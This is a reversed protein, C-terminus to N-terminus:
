RTNDDPVNVKVNKYWYVSFSILILSHIIRFAWEITTNCKVLDPLFTLYFPMTMGFITIAVILLYSHERYKGFLYKSIYFWAVTSAIFSFVATLQVLFVVM